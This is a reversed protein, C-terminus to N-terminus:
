ATRKWMYCTIYPQLNNHAGSGGTSATASITTRGTSKGSALNKTSSGIWFNNGGTGHTHAPMEGVTLKHSKEGGTKEVTNFSSDSTNVGVPVRGSGWSVWTGGFLSSPNTNDVSMYIAGIPYTKDLLSEMVTRLSYSEGSGSFAIDDGTITCTFEEQSSRVITIAGGEIETTAISPM